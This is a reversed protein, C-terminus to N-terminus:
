YKKIVIQGFIMGPIWDERVTFTGTSQFFYTYSPTVAVQYNVLASWASVIIGNVYFNWGLNGLGGQIAGGHFEVEVMGVHSSSYTTGNVFVYITQITPNRLCKGSACVDGTTNISGVM